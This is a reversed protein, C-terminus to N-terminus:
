FPAQDGVQQCSTSEPLMGVMKGTRKDFNVFAATKRPGRRNKEILFLVINKSSMGSYVGFGQPIEPKNVAEFSHLMIGVDIDQEIAGSERIDSIKPLASAKEHERNLQALAIITVGAERGVRKITKSIHAVENERSRGALNATLLQLYDIIVVEVGWERRWKRIIVEVQAINMAPTDNIKVNRGRLLDCAFQLRDEDDATLRGQMLDSDDFGGATALSRQVASVTDMEASIFGVRYRESMNVLFNFGANSKGVSPRAGILVYQGPILGGNLKEDLTSIGTKIRNKDPNKKVEAYEERVTDIAQDIAQTQDGSGRELIKQISVVAKDALDFVDSGNLAAKALRQGIKHLYDKYYREVALRTTNEVGAASVSQDSIHLVYDKGGVGELKNTSVLEQMLTVIDADIGRSKLDVIADFIVRNKPDIFVKGGVDGVVSLFRDYAYGDLLIEALLVEEINGNM